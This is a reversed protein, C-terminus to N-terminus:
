IPLKKSWKKVFAQGKKVRAEKDGLTKRIGKTAQVGGKIIKDTRVRYKEPLRKYVDYARRGLSKPSM